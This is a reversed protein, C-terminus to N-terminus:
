QTGRHAAAVLGIIAFTATYLSLEGLIQVDNLSSMDSKIWSMCGRNRNKGDSTRIILSTPQKNRNDLGSDSNVVDMPALELGQEDDVVTNNKEEASMTNSLQQQNEELGEERSVKITEWEFRLWGWMTRRCIEAAGITLTLIDNLDGGFTKTLVGSRDLYRPPLFSLTWCFRLLVNAGCITWYTSKNPYLRATRLQWRGGKWVLLEWDMFIDWWIQYLTAGVFSCIWIPSRRTSPFFLGFMAVQYAVFYKLANGLYPWRRKADFSQRMNQMFRWWLPSIVCVPLVVTHLLWSSEMEPMSSDADDVFNGSRFYDNSWWGKLGFLIYFITISIDQMPRVASTFIDGIFGDRFLVPYAPAAPTYYLVRWFTMRKKRFPVLAWVVCYAFLLLPFTPAAIRSFPKWNVSSSSAASSSFSSSDSPFFASASFTYLFVAVLISLLLDLAAGAVQCATPIEPVPLPAAPDFEDYDDDIIQEELELEDDTDNGSCDNDNDKDDDDDSEADIVEEEEEDDNDVTEYSNSHSLPQRHMELADNPSSTIWLIKRVTEVGMTNTWILISFATCWLILDVELLARVIRLSPEHRQMATFVNFNADRDSLIFILVVLVAVFSVKKWLRPPIMSAMAAATARMM